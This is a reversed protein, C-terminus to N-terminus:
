LRIGFKITPFSFAKIYNHTAKYSPLGQLQMEVLSNTYSIPSIEVALNLNPTFNYEIGANTYVSLSQAKGARNSYQYLEVPDGAYDGSTIELGTYPTTAAIHAIGLGGALGAYLQIKECKTRFYYNAGISAMYKASITGDMYLYGPTDLLNSTTYTTDMTDYVSVGEVYDKSPNSAFDMSLTANLQIKDTLFYAAQVAAINLLSNDNFSGLNLLYGTESSQNYYSISGSVGLDDTSTTSSTTLKNDPLLLELDETPLFTGSGLNVSIQWNGKQPRYSGSTSDGGSSEQAFTAVCLLLSAISISIKKIM